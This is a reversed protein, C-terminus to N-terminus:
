APVRRRLFLDAVVAAPLRLTQGVSAFLTDRDTFFGLDAQVTSGETAAASSGWELRHDRAAEFLTTPGVNVYTDVCGAGCVGFLESVDTWQDDIHFEPWALVVHRPILLSLHPFRDNWFSGDILFGHVRTPIAYSRAVAELIAFRQSCSGAGRQLVRSVPTLENVSYVGVVRQRVTYYAARVLAASDTPEVSGAQAVLSRVFPSGYDLIATEETSGPVSYRPDIFRRRPSRIAIAM